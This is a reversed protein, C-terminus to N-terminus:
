SIPVVLTAGIADNTTWTHPFSASVNSRNIISGSITYVGFQFRNFGNLCYCMGQREASGADSYVATGYATTGASGTPFPFYPNTGMSSTSGLQIYGTIVLVNNIYCYKWNQTANGVTLNTWSPTFATWTGIPDSGTGLRTQVAVMADNINAHQAAHSPSDLTDGSSPNTFTDLATPYNTAM